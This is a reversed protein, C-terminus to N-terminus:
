GFTVAHEFEYAKFYLDGEIFKNIEDNSWNTCYRISDKLGLLCVNGILNRYGKEKVKHKNEKVEHKFRYRKIRANLEHKVLKAVRSGKFSTKSVLVIVEEPYNSHPDFYIVIPIRGVTTIEQHDIKYTGYSGEVKSLYLSVCERKKNRKQKAM